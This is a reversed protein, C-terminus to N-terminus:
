NDSGFLQQEEEWLDEMEEDETNLDGDSEESDTDEEPAVDEPLIIENDSDKIIGEETLDKLLRWERWKLKEPVKCYM